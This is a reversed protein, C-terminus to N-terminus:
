QAAKFREAMGDVGERETGRALVELDRRLTASPGKRRVKAKTTTSAPRKSAAISRRWDAVDKETVRGKRRRVDLLEAPPAAGNHAERWTRCWNCADRGTEKPVMHGVSACTPCWTSDIRDAVHMPAVIIGLSEAIRAALAVLTSAKSITAHLEDIKRQFPDPRAAKAETATLVVPWADPDDLSEALAQAGEPERAGPTSAPYEGTWDRGNALAAGLYELLVISDVHIRRARNLTSHQM